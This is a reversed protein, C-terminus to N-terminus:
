YGYIDLAHDAMFKMGPARFDDFEVFSGDGTASWVMERGVGGGASANYVPWAPSVADGNPDLGVVFNIWASSMALALDGLADSDDDGDGGGFPNEAYGNGALNYFVFAVEQFHTAASSAPIGHVTVDFRYAWSPSSWRDWALNCRRRLFQMRLDGFYANTRRDQLGLAEVGETQPTVVEPWSALSPIGVSQIDPYLAAVADVIADASRGSSASVNAFLNARVAQAFEADTDVGTGNPGYGTGFATGEDSNAGILLPVRVFRGDDQQRSPYDAIFDGDLVPPWPGVATVNLAEHLEDLPLARLCPIVAAGTGVAGACTTNRVLNDFTEQQAVTANLNGPYRLLVSGFGSQAIAGRFLGDDRGNYAFVHASVSEAGSSEGFITVKDPAGGFAAINEQVWELALRQDRFGINTVGADQAERGSLFGFASLRYNLSVALMPTGQRVSNDVLFSLNYRRDASGGMYLGGGHIWVAVPLGGGATSNATTTTAAADDNSLGAPRIVNLYLCDESIEYGIDDGGYGICHKPYATAERTGNWTADLPQALTFRPAVQAYPMGLFFDQNYETSYVGSYTGNKVTVTPTTRSTGNTPYQAVALPSAFAMMMMIMLPCLATIRKHSLM